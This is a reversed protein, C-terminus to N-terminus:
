GITGRYRLGIRDAEARMRTRRIIDQPNGGERDMWRCLELIKVAYCIGPPFQEVVITWRENIAHDADHLWEDRALKAYGSLAAEYISDAEVWVWAEISRMGDARCCVRCTRREGMRGLITWKRREPSSM